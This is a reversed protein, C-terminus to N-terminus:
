ILSSLRCEVFLILIKGDAGFVNRTLRINNLGKVTLPNGVSSYFRRANSLTFDILTVLAGVATLANIFYVLVVLISILSVTKTIRKKKREAIVSWDPNSHKKFSTYVINPFKLYDVITASSPQIPTVCGFDTMIHWRRVKVVTSLKLLSSATLRFRPRFQSKSNRIFPAHERRKRTTKVVRGSSNQRRASFTLIESQTILCFLRKKMKDDTIQVKNGKQLCPM